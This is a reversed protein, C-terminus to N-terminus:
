QLLAQTKQAGMADLLAQQQTEKLEGLWTNVVRGSQDTLIATPTGLIKLVQFNVAPIIDLSLGEKQMMKQAVSRDDPFIAIIHVGKLNGTKQLDLLKKYFPASDECFHCGNRLALVLTRGSSHWDYGPLNPLADGAKIAPPQVRGAQVPPHFRDKLYLGGVVLVFAIIAINTLQELKQRM